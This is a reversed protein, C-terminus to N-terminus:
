LSLSAVCQSLQDTWEMGLGYSRSNSLRPSRRQQKQQLRQETQAQQKRQEICEGLAKLRNVVIQCYKRLLECRLSEFEEAASRNGSCTNSANNNSSGDGGLESYLKKFLESLRSDARAIDLVAAAHNTLCSLTILVQWVLEQQQPPCCIASSSHEASSFTFNSSALVSILAQTCQRNYLLPALGGDHSLDCLTRVAQAQAPPDEARQADKILRDIIVLREPKGFFIANESIETSAPTVNGGGKIFETIENFIMEYYPKGGAVFNGELRVLESSDSSVLRLMISCKQTGCLLEVCWSIQDIIKFAVGNRSALYQNITLRLIQINTNFDCFSSYSFNMTVHQQSHQQNCIQNEMKMGDAPNLSLTPDVIARAHSVASMSAWNSAAIDDEIGMMKNDEGQFLTGEYDECYHTQQLLFM